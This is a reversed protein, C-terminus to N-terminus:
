PNGISIVLRVLMRRSHVKKRVAKVIRSLVLSAHVSKWGWRDFRSRDMGVRVTRSGVTRLKRSYTGGASIMGWRVYRVIKVMDMRMPRFAMRFFLQFLVVFLSLESAGKDM